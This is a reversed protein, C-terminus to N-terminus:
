NINRRYGVKSQEKIIVRTFQPYEKTNGCVDVLQIGEGHERISTIDSYTDREEEDGHLVLVCFM